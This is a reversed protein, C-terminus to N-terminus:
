YKKQIWSKLKQVANDRIEKEFDKLKVSHNSNKLVLRLNDKDPPFPIPCVIGWPDSDAIILMLHEMETEAWKKQAMRFTNDFVIKQGSFFSLPYDKNKLYKRFPNEYYGYYGGESFAQYYHATLRKIPPIFTFILKDQFSAPLIKPKFGFEQLAEYNLTTGTKFKEYNGYSQWFEIGLELVSYDYLIEADYKSFDENAFLEKNNIFDLFEPILRKKNKLLYILDEYLKAGDATQRKDAIFKEFRKDEAELTLSIGYAVIAEVDNPYYFKYALVADGGKSHGTAIWRSPFIGTLIQRIHHFDDSVQKYTLYKFTTSDPISKGFYRHEVIIQNAALLETPETKYSPEEQFRYFGYPGSEMVVPASLSNFGLLIRNLFIGKTRDNHDVLQPVNIRYYEKYASSDVTIINEAGFLEQLKPLLTQAQGISFAVFTLITFLLYTKTKM